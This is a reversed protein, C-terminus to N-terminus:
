QVEWSDYAPIIYQMLPGVFFTGNSRLDFEYRLYYSNLGVNASANVIQNMIEMSQNDAHPISQYEYSFIFSYPDGKM